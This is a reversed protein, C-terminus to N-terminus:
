PFLMKQNSKNFMAIIILYDYINIESKIFGSPDYIQQGDSAVAHRDNILVYRDHNHFLIDTEITIYNNEDPGLAARVEIPMCIFGLKYAAIMCEQYHWGRLSNPLPLHPYLIDEGM